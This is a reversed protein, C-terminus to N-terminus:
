GGSSVDANDIVRGAAAREQKVRKKLAQSMKAAQSNVKSSLERLMAVEARLQDTSLQDPNTTM